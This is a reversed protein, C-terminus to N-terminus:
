RGSRLEHSPSRGLGTRLSVYARFRPRVGVCRISAIVRAWGAVLASDAAADTVGIEREANVLLYASLKRGGIHLLEGVVRLVGSVQNARRRATDLAKTPFTPHRIGCAGDSRRSACKWNTTPTRLWLLESIRDQHFSEGLRLSLLGRVRKSRMCTANSWSKKRRPYQVNQVILIQVEEHM